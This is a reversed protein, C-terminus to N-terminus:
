YINSCIQTILVKSCTLKQNTTSFFMVVRFGAGYDLKFKFTKFMKKSMIITLKHSMQDYITYKNSIKKFKHDLKSNKNYKKSNKHSSLKM